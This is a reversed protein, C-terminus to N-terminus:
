ESSPESILARLSIIQDVVVEHDFMGSHAYHGRKATMRGVFEIEYFGGRGEQPEIGQRRLVQSYSLWVEDGPTEYGCETAPEPCFRSGEFDNRWIGRWTQTPAMEFCQDVSLSSISTIGGYRAKDVCESTMGPLMAQMEWLEDESMKPTRRDCGSFLAVFVSLTAALTRRSCVM